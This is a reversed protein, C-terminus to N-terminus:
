VRILGSILNVVAVALERGKTREEPRVLGRRALLGLAADVEMASGRAVRLQQARDAGARGNAEVLNLVVSGSARQVQDLLWGQGRPARRCVSVVLGDLEEAFQYAKLREHALSFNAANPTTM